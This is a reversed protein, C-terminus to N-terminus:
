VHFVRWQALMDSGSPWFELRLPTQHPSPISYVGVNGFPGAIVTGTGDRVNVVQGSGTLVPMSLRNGTGGYYAYYYSTTPGHPFLREYLTGEVLIPALLPDQTGPPAAVPEGSPILRAWFHSFKKQAVGGEFWDVCAVAEWKQRGQGQDVQLVCGMGDYQSTYFPVDPTNFVIGRLMPDNTAWDPDGEWAFWPWYVTCECEFPSFRAPLGTMVTFLSDNVQLVNNPTLNPPWFRPTM